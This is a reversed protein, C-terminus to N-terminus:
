FFALDGRLLRILTPGFIILVVSMLILTGPILIRLGASSALKEARVSRHMRMMGSQQKLIVSLPTGLKEAQNIAGVVSRLSDLPIRDAMNQLANARSTGFDIEAQVIRLERNLDDDPNDRILTEIAESFTSGAAMMLAILDLTYPLQKGIRLVRKRAEGRISTLPIFLGVVFMLPVLWMQFQQVAALVAVTGGATMVASGLCLAIYEEVSYNNPNGAAELDRRVQKRLNRWNLRHAMALALNMLPAVVPQEFLTVRSQAGVAKAVKRHVAPEAPVPFRFLAWVVFFTAFAVLATVLLGLLLEPPM